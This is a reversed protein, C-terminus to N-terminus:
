GRGPPRPGLALLWEGLKAGIEGLPGSGLGAGLIPQSGDEALVLEGGQRFTAWGLWALFLAVAGGLGLALLMGLTGVLWGPSAGGALGGGLLQRAPRGFCLAGAALAAAAVAAAHRIEVPARACLVTGTVGDVAIEYPRGAHRYRAQWVPYYLVKLRQEVVGTRDGKVTIRLQSEDAFRAPPKTPAFVVARGQLAVLDYPELAVPTAGRRLNELHIQSVGLEPLDCAPGIRVYEQQIVRTDEKEVSPVALWQQFERNQAGEEVLPAPPKMGKRLLFTGLRTGTFEYFPVYCLSVDQIRGRERLARPLRSGTLFQQAAARAAEMSVGLAVVYRPVAGPILVLSEGGCYRCTVLRQGEALSLTGGCSPCGLHTLAM